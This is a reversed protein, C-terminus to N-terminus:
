ASALVKKKGKKSGKSDDLEKVAQTAAIKYAEALTPYNFIVEDVIKDVPTETMMFCQGIHILNAADAGVIHTGLIKHTDRCVILKLLGFHDGRIYGRALQDYHAKGVVYPKKEKKLEEETKGVSSMEPITYVGMPFDKPFKLDPGDFAHCMAIRGQEVSTCALAPPGIIDGAAYISPIATQFYDNVDIAGRNNTQVGVRELGLRKSCSVRGASFFFLDSEINENQFHSVVKPGETEIHDLDYGLRFEVGMNEMSRKLEDAVEQDASQMIRTRADVIVVKSGLARFICAYECGIVGAGFVLISKPIHELTLIEDSDVIRWGDFPINDPRRPRSGTAVMICKAELLKSEQDNNVRVSNKTEVFGFGRFIEVSHSELEKILLCEEDNSVEDARRKLRDTSLDDVLRQVWHAGVHRDISKVAALVERFTKSPITGTHIWAGGLNKPNAEVLAVTQGLKRAQIAASIGAPGSGIVVLDYSNKEGSKSSM